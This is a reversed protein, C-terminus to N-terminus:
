QGSACGTEPLSALARRLLAQSRASRMIGTHNEEVLYLRDTEDQAAPLLQSALPVSGDNPEVIMRNNGAYAVLQWQRIHTPLPDAFLERLFPSGPAMDRWVPVDVPVRAAGTAASPHGGWPTALTLLLCLRQDGAGPRLLQATRRAVLGGMSHAVLHLRKPAYRLQLDRLAESLLYANNTLPSGSPYQYLLVQFRQPDIAAALERWSRPSDNIGHILIVPELDDQWPRLLYLGYGIERIFDLPRWAGQQIRTQDFRPDDFDVVQLYNHRLRPHERYLRGLSLDAAPVEVGTDPQPSLVNHETFAARQEASPQLRMAVTQAPARWHRPEGPDLRFNINSDVFALLQYDGREVSFYFLAGPAVVRYGLAEGNEDLLVVLATQDSHLRGPVLMLDREVQQMQKGLHLLNCASLPMLLALLLWRCQRM